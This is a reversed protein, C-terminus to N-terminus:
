KHPLFDAVAGTMSSSAPAATSGAAPIEDLATVGIAHIRRNGAM